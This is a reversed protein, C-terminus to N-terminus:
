SDLEYQEFLSIRNGFCDVCIAQMGYPLHAVNGEIKVGSESLRKVLQECDAVPFGILIAGGAQWGVLAAEEARRPLVPIIDFPFREDAFRLRVFRGPGPGTDSLIAFLALRNCYFDIARDVDDVLLGFVISPKM